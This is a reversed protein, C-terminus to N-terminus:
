WVRKRVPVDAEHIVALIMDSSRLSAITHLFPQGRLRAAVSVGDIFIRV